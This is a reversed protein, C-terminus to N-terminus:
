FYSNPSRAPVSQRPWWVLVFSLLLYAALAGGVPFAPVSVAAFPLAAFQAVVWLMYTLLAHAPAAVALALTSSVFGVVGVVFVALMALPVVPLILVNVLLAVVSLEGMLYLLWPTVAIQTAVTVAVLERLAYREPLWMLYPLLRPAGLLLGFTAIVSLQFSPDYVLTYPNAILMACATICLAHVASYTRHTLMGLVAIGGMLGARVVPAGAGVLLVFLAIGILAGVYRIREPFPRLLAAIFFVVIAVNYGSLVVIHIIGTRRFQETLEDGLSRRAGVTIGGALAAHPEALARNLVDLYRHKLAFLPGLLTFTDRPHVQVAEPFASIAGIRDKALYGQYDFIRGGTGAFNEPPELRGTVQVVDSYSATIHPQTRVLIRYPFADSALTLNTYAGRADPEAVVTGSVSVVTEPVVFSEPPIAAHMRAIGFAVGLCGVVVVWAWMRARPTSFILYGCALTALAIGVLAASTAVGLTTTSRIAIGCACAACALPVVWRMHTRYM